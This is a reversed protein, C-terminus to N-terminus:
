TELMDDIVPLIDEIHEFPKTMVRTKLDPTPRESLSREMEQAKNLAATTIIIPLDATTANARLAHYVDPGLLKGNFDLDLIVIDPQAARIKDVVGDIETYATFQYDEDEFLLALLPAVNDDVVVIHRTPAMHPRGKRTYPNCDGNVKGLLRVGNQM